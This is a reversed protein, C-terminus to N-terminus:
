KQNDNCKEAFYSLPLFPYVFDKLLSTSTQYKWSKIARLLNEPTRVFPSQKYYNVIERVVAVFAHYAGKNNSNPKIFLSANVNTGMTQYALKYKEYDYDEMESLKKINQKVESLQTEARDLMRQAAKDTYLARIKSTYNQVSDFFKKVTLDINAQM